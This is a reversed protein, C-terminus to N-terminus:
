KPSLWGESEPTDPHIFVGQYKECDELHDALKMLQEKLDLDEFLRTLAERVKYRHAAALIPDEDSHVIIATCEAM